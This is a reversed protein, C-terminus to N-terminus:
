NEKNDAIQERLYNETGNKIQSIIADYGPSDNGLGFSFKQARQEALPGSLPAIPNGPSELSFDPTVEDEGFSFEPTVNAANASNTDESIPLLGGFTESPSLNENNM